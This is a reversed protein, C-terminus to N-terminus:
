NVRKVVFATPDGGFSLNFDIKDKSVIGKYRITMKTGSVEFALSFSLLAGELKGNTIKIEGQPGVTTGTVNNGDTKLDFSVPIAGDPTAISGAWKGDADSAFCSVGALVLIAAARRINM